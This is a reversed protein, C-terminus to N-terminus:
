AERSRITDFFSRVLDSKGTVRAMGPPLQVAEPVPGRASRFVPMAKGEAPATPTPAAGANARTLPPEDERRQAARTAEARTAEARLSKVSTETRDVATAFQTVVPELAQMATMLARVRRDVLCAYVLTGLLLVLIIVDILVDM